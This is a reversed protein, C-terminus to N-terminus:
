PVAQRQRPDLAADFEKPRQDFPHIAIWGQEVCQSVDCAEFRTDV